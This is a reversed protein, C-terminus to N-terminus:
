KVQKALQLLKSSISLNAKKAATNNIIFRINGGEVVFRIMGKSEFQPADSVTLIPMGSLTIVSGAADVALFVLHCKTLDSVTGRKIQIPHGSIDKGGVLSELSKGFPDTGAVGILFPSSGSAFASAPWTVFKAFNFLYAAKAEFENASQVRGEHVALLSLFLAVGASLIRRRFPLNSMM